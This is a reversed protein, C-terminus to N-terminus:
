PRLSHCTAFGCALGLRVRLRCGGLTCARAQWAANSCHVGEELAQWQCVDRMDRVQWAGASPELMM